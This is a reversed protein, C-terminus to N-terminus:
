RAELNCRQPPLSEDDGQQVQKCRWQGKASVEDNTAERRSDEAGAFRQSECGFYLCVLVQREDNLSLSNHITDILEHNSREGMPCELLTQRSQVVVELPELILRFPRRVATTLVQLTVFSQGSSILGWEAGSKKCSCM